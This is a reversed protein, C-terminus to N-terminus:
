GAVAIRQVSEVRKAPGTEQYSLVAANPIVGSIAEALFPRLTARTILVPDRGAKAMGALAEATSDVFRALFGQPLRTLGEQGQVAEALSRELSGDIVAAHLTGAPDLLRELITRALRGRVKETLLRPDKTEQIGDAIAELIAQLNRIPVQEKLLGALVRQLQGISLQAPILEEVA